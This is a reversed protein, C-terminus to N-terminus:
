EYHLCFKQRIRAARLLRVNQVVEKKSLETASAAEAEATATGQPPGSPFSAPEPAQAPAEFPISLGAAPSPLPPPAEIETLNISSTREVVIFRNRASSLM